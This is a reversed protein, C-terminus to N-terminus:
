GSTIMALLGANQEGNFPTKAPTASHCVKAEEGPSNFWFGVNFTHIPVCPDEPNEIFTEKDFIGQVRVSANGNSNSQVDSQYWGFGFGSFGPDLPSNQVLFMDFGTNRPLGSATLIMVDNLADTAFRNSITIHARAKQIAPCAFAGSLLGPNVQLQFTCFKGKCKEGGAQSVLANHATPRAYTNSARSGTFATLVSVLAAALLVSFLLRHHLSFRRIM